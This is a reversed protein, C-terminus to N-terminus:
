TGFPELRLQSPMQYDFCKVTKKRKKPDKGERNVLMAVGRMLKNPIWKRKRCFGPQDNGGGRSEEGEGRLTV